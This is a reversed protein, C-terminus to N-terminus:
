TASRLARRKFRMRRLRTLLSSHDRTAAARQQASPLSTLIPLGFVQLVDERCRVRRDRMEIGLAATVGLLTGVFVGLLLNLLVRPRSPETPPLAESLIAVNTQQSLSELNTQSRRQAVLDYAKQAEELDKELVAAQDREARMELVRKRQADLAAKVEIERQVNVANSTGVSGAIEHMASQLKAKLSEFEALAGQLQPHNSGLQNKLEHVKAESRAVDAQLQQIMPNQMVDPSTSAEGFAQIQRSQSEARLAQVTTLQTSLENLRTNEVDLREDTVSIGHSRQFESLRMQAKEVETRLQSTRAEFFGSSVRAPDTRLELCTDVYAKAYANVVKAAFAADAATYQISIVDSERSPKVDLQKALLGAIYQEVTGLGDGDDLWQAHAYPDKDLGLLRVVRLGVRDSTIIDVQTATNTEEGGYNPQMLGYVPDPARPDSLVTAVASYKKPLILTIALDASFVLLLVLLALRKRANLIRLFQSITMFPFQPHPDV